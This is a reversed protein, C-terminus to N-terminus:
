QSRATDGSNFLVFTQEGMSTFITGKFISNSVETMMICVYGDEQVRFVSAIIAM